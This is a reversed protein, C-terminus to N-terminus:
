VLIMTMLKLILTFHYCKCITHYNITRINAIFSYNKFKLINLFNPFAARSELTALSLLHVHFLDMLAITLDKELRTGGTYWRFGWISINIPDVLPWLWHWDLFRPYMSYDRLPGSKILRSGQYESCLAIGALMFFCLTFGVRVYEEIQLLHWCLCDWHLYLSSYYFNFHCIRSTHGVHFM